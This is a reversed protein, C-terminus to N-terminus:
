NFEFTIIFSGAYIGVPNDQLTGVILTAGVNITQSGNHLMGTAIGEPPDSKWNEIVMSRANSLNTLLIPSSPLSISYAINADGTILFSAANFPGPAKFVSGQLSTTGQPTMIIKGGQAGPSFRGFNLPSTESASFMPVIEAFIQGTASVRSETQSHAVNGTILLMSSVLIARLTKM